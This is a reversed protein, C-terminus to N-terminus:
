RALLNRLSRSPFALQHGECGLEGDWGLFVWVGKHASDCDCLHGLWEVSDYVDLLARLQILHCEEGQQPSCLVQKWLTGYWALSTRVHL